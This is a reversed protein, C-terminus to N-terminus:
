PDSRPPCRSARRRVHRARWAVAVRRTAAPFSGGDMEARGQPTRGEIPQLMPSPGFAVGPDVM